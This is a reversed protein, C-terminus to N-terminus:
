WGWVLCRSIRVYDVYLQTWQGFWDQITPNGIYVSTPRTTSIVSGQYVGDVYLSYRDGHELSVDVKHWGTDGPTGVWKVGGEFLSVDFRYVGGQPDVVHHINLIHEVAFPLDSTNSVRNGDFAASNLAVTTGYATFDSYRFRAEFLFDDGATDFLDNRWVMPFRDTLDPVWQHIQGGSVEQLGTALSVNWGSLAPDNFDEM